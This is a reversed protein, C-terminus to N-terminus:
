PSVVRYFRGAGELPVDITIERGVPEATVSELDVWSGDSLSDMTQVRYSTRPQAPFSLSFKGQFLRPNSLTLTEGPASASGPSGGLVSLRWGAAQDLNTNPDILEISYGDGDAGTPWPAEDGYTVEHIVFGFRDVLRVTEGGNSLGDTYTGSPKPAAPFRKAFALPNRALILSAGSPLERADGTSFDYLIGLTFRAGDLSVTNTSFNTVEIFEFAEADAFGAAIEDATPNAPHYYIETIRLARRQTDGPQTTRIAISDKGISEGRLNFAELQISNTAEPLAFTVRWRNADLWTLPLPGHLSSRVERVDVWGRGELVVEPTATEFDVGGNTTIEFPVKAPLRSRVYTSRARVRSGYNFSQGAVAGFNTMFPTLYNTSFAGEIMNLLHGYLLRTNAPRTILRVLNQDGWLAATDGNAFFFDWDYPLAIVKGDSPRAYFGINHPNGLTYTDGVEFLTLLAYYRMWQDVDMVKPAAQEFATTSLSFAKAMAIYSSFDNRARNNRLTTSFRYQEPDDGLNMIDYDGVWGVPMGLKIGEVNNNHTAQLVRIGEMNFLMGDTGNEFQSGLFIDNYHALSLRAAGSNGTRHPQLEVIDEYMGPLGVQNQTHKAIIEEIVGRNPQITRHVGRFKHNSPFKINYPVTELNQRTFMSGHLHVGCDYFVESNDWIVTTGIRDDSMMNTSSDLLRADATTLIFSLTKRTAKAARSDSRFLARSNIGGAPYVSVSGQTDRGEVYFQVVALNAPSVLTTSYLGGGKPEMPREQWAGGSVSWRLKMEAIGDADVAHTQITVTEGAKPTLPSHALADFEPGPNALYTSNRAGPTGHQSPQDLITTRAVKNYYLETHLQPSGAIWRARFSIEYTRGAVVPVVVGGAKLTSELQNHMYGRADTAVLRLVSNGADAPDPAILSHSHNGLFRWAKADNFATNQILQRPTGDPDETVTVDDIWAEGDALMGMRFEHFGNIAPAKTPNIAKARYTYTKWSTRSSEDSASWSEPLLPNSFPNRRELSSGGGDARGPWPADDFYRVEDAPNDHADVLRIQGIRGGLSGSWDGLIRIGPYQLALHTRDSTIVLYQNPALVTNPPFDFDVDGRLKWGALDISKQSRNYLELWQEPNEAFAQAPQGESAARAYQPPAHYLVENIVIEDHLDFVNPGGRSSQTPTWYPTNPRLDKRAQPKNSLRVADLAQVGNAGILFLRDGASVTFGLANTGLALYEGPGLPLQRFIYEFGASSRLRLPRLDAPASGANFIECWFNGSNAPQVESFVVTSIAGPEISQRRGSLDVDLLANGDDLSATLWHIALVNGAPVLFPTAASVDITEPLLTEQISRATTASSNWLPAAPANRRAIERGNLYAIFGDNYRIKLSLTDYGLPSPADFSHRVWATTQRNKMAGSLDTQVLDNFGGTGAPSAGSALNAIDSPSLVENWLSVDDLQGNLPNAFGSSPTGLLWRTGGTWLTGVPDAVGEEKGNVYLRALGNDRATAAVHYWTNPALTTTGTVVNLGGDFTYHEFKGNATVRIQHSWSGLPGSDDTLVLISGPRVERFKVWASLTYAPKAGADTIQVADDIGDFKLSGSSGAVPAPDSSISVWNLLLATTPNASRDSGDTDFRYAHAVSPFAPGSSSDFGYRNTGRNWSGDSFAPDRWNLNADAATPILWRGASRNTIFSDIIEVPPPPPTTPTPPFNLTGPTGGVRPSSQWNEPPSSPSDAIIKSLSAGSGDPLVPWPTNDQYRLEDMLRGNHNRLVLREGANDLNAIFPGLAKVGTRAQFAAPDAAIVIYGGGLLRTDPPFKFDIGEITWNSLDVMVALQNHLEIWEGATDSPAPNYMVENFTVVSDAFTTSNAYRVPDAAHVFATLLLAPAIRVCPRDLVCRLRSLLRPLHLM